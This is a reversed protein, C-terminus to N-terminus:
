YCSQLISFEIRQCITVTLGFHKFAVAAYMFLDIHWLPCLSGLYRLQNEFVFCLQVCLSETGVALLM